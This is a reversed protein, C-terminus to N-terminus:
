PAETTTTLAAQLEGLARRYSDFGESDAADGFSAAIAERAPIVTDLLPLGLEDLASRAGALSRTRSRVQTLLIVGPVAANRVEELTEGLRDLDLMTPRVPILAVDARALAARVLRLDGPPTDIIVEAGAALDRLGRLTEPTTAGVTLVAEGLGGAEDAWRLASAQRDADALVVRAGGAALVLSLYVATTTKGVGGKLAVVAIVAM